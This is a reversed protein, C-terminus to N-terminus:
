EAVAAEAFGESFEIAQFLKRRLTDLSKYAPLKLKAFCTSASPLQEESSTTGVLAFQTVGGNFGPLRSFGIAPPSPSGTCFALLKARNPLSMERVISWFWKALPHAPSLLGEYERRNVRPSTPNAQAQQAPQSPQGPRSSQCPQRAQNPQRPQSPSAYPKEIPKM